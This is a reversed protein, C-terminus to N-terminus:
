VEKDYPIGDLSSETTTNIELAGQITGIPPNKITNYNALDEDIAIFIAKLLTATLADPMLKFILSNQSKLYEFARRVKRQINKDSGSFEIM